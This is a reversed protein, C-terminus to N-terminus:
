VPQAAAPYSGLVKLLLCRRRLAALARAVRPEHVHGMLDLFFLYEWAREKLPRSGISCLSVRNDAFPKLVRHLAGAEHPVSLLLSTKDDGSPPSVGDCGVVLFRTCNHAQDQINAAVVKLGYHEAAARGAIAARRADRRALEAAQANSAAEVQPVGAFHAALWQRCQGLSQPHSLIQRVRDPRGSRSLLCQEIALLVEAKITLPSAVFRDLTAAVIGQTSNEVPVIGYDARGHEVEDFVGAISAAPVLESHAGFQERVAQHSFTGLPGLFAVRIEKELSLCASIIERFIPQISAAQLPGTSRATLRELIRKERAPTYISSRTHHKRKGIQIALRARENLLALLKEDIRDIHARLADISTARPM